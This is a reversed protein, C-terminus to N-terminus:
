GGLRPSALAPSAVNLATIVVIGALQLTKMSLKITVTSNEEMLWHGSNAVLAEPMNTGTAKMVVTMM